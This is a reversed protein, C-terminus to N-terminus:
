EEERECPTDAPEPPQSSHSPKGVAGRAPPSTMPVSVPGSARTARLDLVARLRPRSPTSHSPDNPPSAPAEAPSHVPESLFLSLQRPRDLGGREYAKAGRSGPILPLNLTPRCHLCQDEPDGLCDILNLADCETCPRLALEQTCALLTALLVAYEFTIAPELVSKQYAEYAECLQEGHRVTRFLNLPTRVRPQTLQLAEECLYGLVAAQSAIRATRFFFGVQRPSQGRHRIPYPGRESNPARRALKRVRDYSLGTWAVITNTRAEHQLLRAALQYRRLERTYPNEFVRM